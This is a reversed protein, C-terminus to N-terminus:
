NEDRVIADAWRTRTTSRPPSEGKDKIEEKLLLLRMNDDQSYLSLSLPTADSSTRHTHRRNHANNDNKQWFVFSLQKSDLLLFLSDCRVEPDNMVSRHRPLDLVLGKLEKM